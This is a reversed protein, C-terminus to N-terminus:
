KDGGKKKKRDTKPRVLPQASMNNMIYDLIDYAWQPDCQGKLGVLVAKIGDFIGRAGRYAGLTGDKM